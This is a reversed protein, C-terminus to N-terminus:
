LEYRTEHGVPVGNETIYEETGDPYVIQPSPFPDGQETTPTALPYVLYTGSMATAFTSADTYASDRVWVQGHLGSASWIVTVTKDKADSRLEVYSASLYKSCVLNPNDNYVAPEKVQGVLGTTTFVGDVTKTWTQTGLDVIGYKRAITGDATKRDGDAYLNNNADLKFIGNLVDDGYDYTQSTYPEYEGNRDSSLNICIDHNYTAGYNAYTAFRMYLANNPSTHVTNGTYANHGIYAKNADYWYVDFPSTSRFYYDMNPIVAIYDATKSRIRDSTNWPSGTADAYGGVEWEENWQNFGRVVKGTVEVSEISGANFAQYGCLFGWERLKAIGSGATASELSYIYDAITTGLKQTLDIVNVAGRGSVAEGNGCAIRVYLYTPLATPTYIVIKRGGFQSASLDTYPNNIVCYLKNDTSASYLIYRHGVTFHKLFDDDGTFAGADVYSSATSTGSYRFEVGNERVVTLGSATRTTDYFDVLQNEGVSAGIITEYCRKIEM